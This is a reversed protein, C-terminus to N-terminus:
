EFTFLSLKNSPNQSIFIKSTHTTNTHTLSFSLSFSFGELEEFVRLINAM